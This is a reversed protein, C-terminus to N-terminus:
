DGNSVVAPLDAGTATTLAFLNQKQKHHGSPWQGEKLLSGPARVEPNDEAPHVQGRQPLHHGRQHAPPGPQLAFDHVQPPIFCFLSNLDQFEFGSSVEDLCAACDLLLHDGATIVFVYILSKRHSYNRSSDLFQWTLWQPNFCCFVTM